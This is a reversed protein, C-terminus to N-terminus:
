TAITITDFKLEAILGLPLVYNTKGHGINPIRLVPIDLGHAFRHLVKEILEADREQDSGMFDGLLIASCYQFIGTQQLHVFSRDIQYAPMNVDELFLIKNKTTLQWSTGLSCEVLTLNGGVIPANIKEMHKAPQNLATLNSFEITKTQGLLINKIQLMSSDDVLGMAVQQASSAHITPWGWKEQLFIHLATIDSFGIFLKQQKPANLKELMPILRMSGYGGRLCWIAKSNPNYLADKLLTFRIEDSNACLLDDGLINTPINAQLDWSTLLVAIKDLVEPDSKGATAVIDIIDNM